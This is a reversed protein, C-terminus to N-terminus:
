GSVFSPMEALQTPHGFTARSSPPNITSSYPRMLNNNGHDTKNDITDLLPLGSSPTICDKKFVQIDYARDSINYKSIFQQVGVEIPPDKLYGPTLLDIDWSFPDLSSPQNTPKFSPVDSPNLCSRQFVRAHGAKDGNDNDNYRAGVALVDGNASVDVSWGFMDHCAEGDVDNGVQIWGLPSTNNDRKYVQTHGSNLGNDNNLSGGVVLINGDSSLAVSSGFHDGAAAGNLDQGLQNWGFLTQSDREYVRVHGSDIGNGDNRYGGIAIINGMSSLAISIGFYDQHADGVITQGEQTWGLSSSPNRRYIKVYGNGNQQFTGFAIINADSSIDVSWGVEDGPADGNIDGGVQSWGIDATDNMQFVRVRGRGYATGGADNLRDGIILVDGTGSLAVSSGSLDRMNGLIDNGIQAWGLAASADRRFAKTIGSNYGNADSGIAGFAIIEGNASIAVSWGAYDGAIDGDIDMGVQIWGLPSTDNRSFVRISGADPQDGNPGDNFFAGVVLTNGESSLAVSYGFSDEAAEGDIDLGVQDWQTDNCKPDDETLARLGGNDKDKDKDKDKNNDMDHLLMFQPLKSENEIEEGDAVDTLPLPTTRSTTSLSTTTGHLLEKLISKNPTVGVDVVSPTTDFKISNNSSSPSPNGHKLSSHLRSPTNTSYVM